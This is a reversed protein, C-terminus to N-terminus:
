ASPGPNLDQSSGTKGNVESREQRSEWCVKIKIIRKFGALEDRMSFYEPAGKESGDEGYHELDIDEDKDAHTM